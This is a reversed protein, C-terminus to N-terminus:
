RPVALLMADLLRKEDSERPYLASLANALRLFDPSREQEAELLRRLANTHGSSQLLMAAHVRDLTTADRRSELKAESGAVTTTRRRGRGRVTPASVADPFLTLQAPGGRASEIELAAVSAGAEGFLQQAREHVPLLRVIGKEVEIIRHEWTPIHIGLPQAFRRVVDFPLSLGSKKKGRPAEDDDDDEGEGGPLPDPHPGAGADTEALDTTEMTWLFLATLRADEELAGATGNRAKAEATGLVQELASRGVVEWVYALYGRQHPDRAEPDGGLPIEREEADVVKSYRSYIELAPGICAFVLDAGRIGEGQLREMWDGVRKPLERLVNGWDGIPADVLRPRCVLHVSTALSATDRANLREGMETAIPWSATITWGGRILGGLLAEWGETSKHAFVVSGIGTPLTIRHGEKMASAM